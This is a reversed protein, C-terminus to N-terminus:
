SARRAGFEAILLADVLGQHPKKGKGVTLCQTPFLRRVAELSRAKPDTGSTGAHMVRTWTQPPVLEYPLELTECWGLLRGFGTGYTFMSVVGQGPRAQSKEILVLPHAEIYPMAWVYLKAPTMDSLLEVLVTNERRDILAVAGEKGPDIGIIRRAM